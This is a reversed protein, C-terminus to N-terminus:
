APLSMELHTLRAMTLSNTFVNHLCGTMAFLQPPMQCIIAHAASCLGPTFAIAQLILWALLQKIDHLNM